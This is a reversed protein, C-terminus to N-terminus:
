PSPPKWDYHLNSLSNVSGLGGGTLRSGMELPQQQQQQQNMASNSMGGSGYGISGGGASNRTMGGGNTGKVEDNGLSSVGNVPSLMMLDQIFQDISGQADNADEQPQPAQQQQMASTNAPPNIANLHTTTNQSTPITNYNSTTPTPPSFPASPNPQSPPLPSSSSTSPMQFTNRNGSGLQNEQRSNVSNQHLLLGATATASQSNLPRGNISNDMNGIGNTCSPLQMITAQVSSQDNFNSNQPMTQHQQESQEAQQQPLGASSSIRRPFKILSDMPGTETETSYDILDKMSTVVEAIQLWRIFGKTYGLENLQPVELAKALQRASAVFSSCSNQLDQYSLGSPTSQTANQYKQVVVGLQSLQPVISRRPILVEHRRACFEWSSIKLDPNFVIRLHGEHVVRLQEFVSEEIAKPYDLVIQGLATHSEHPLNVYLLEELTGNAFTIQYLRPLFDATTAFSRGPRLNCIECHWVDQPFVGTMQRGGYLSVCWTKKANPSFYESVFKKWFEISNDQPRHQQHYMYQTLRRACTGPEYNNPKMQSRLALNQQLQQQQQQLQNRLPLGKILHQHQQQHQQQQQLFRQHQQLLNLQVAANPSQRAMQLLQQQRLLMLPDSHQHEMKLPGLSRMAQLQQPSMKVLGLGQLSQLQQQTLGNQNGGPGLVGVNGLGGRLQQQQQQQQPISHQHLFNQQPRSPETVLRSMSTAFAHPDAEPSRFQQLQQLNMINGVSQNIFSSVNPMNANNLQTQPSALSSFPQPSPISNSQGGAMLGSNSRLLSNAVSQAGGAPAPPGSPVM